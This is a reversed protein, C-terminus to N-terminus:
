DKEYYEQSVLRLITQSPPQRKGWDTSFEVKYQLKKM